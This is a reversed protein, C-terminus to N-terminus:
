KTNEKELHERFSAPDPMHCTWTHGTPPVVLTDWYGEKGLCSPCHCKGCSRWLEKPLAVYATSHAADFAVVNMSLTAPTISTPIAPGVM